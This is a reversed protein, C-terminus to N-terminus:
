RRWMDGLQHHELFKHTVPEGTTQRGNQACMNGVTGAVLELQQIDNLGNAWYARQSASLEATNQLQADTFPNTSRFGCTHYWKRLFVPKNRVSLGAPISVLVARERDMRPSAALSGTGTLLTDLRMLNTQRDGTGTNWVRGRVFNVETSHLEKEKNVIQDLMAQLAGTDTFPIAPAEYYYINAFTQQTGRFLVTKEISFGYRPV